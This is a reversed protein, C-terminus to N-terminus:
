RTFIEGEYGKEPVATPIRKDVVNVVGAASASSYLLLPPVM